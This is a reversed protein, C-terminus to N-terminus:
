VAIQLSRKKTVIDEKPIYKTQKSKPPQPNDKKQFKYAKNNGKEGIVMRIFSPTMMKIEAQFIMSEDKQLAKTEEVASKVSTIVKSRGQYKMITEFKGDIKMYNELVSDLKDFTVDKNSCLYGLENTYIIEL